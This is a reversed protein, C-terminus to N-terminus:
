LTVINMYMVSGVFHKDVSRLNVIIIYYSQNTDDYDKDQHPHYVFEYGCIEDMDVDVPNVECKLPLKM